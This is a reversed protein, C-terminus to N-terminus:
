GSMLTARMRRGKESDFPVFEISEPPYSVSRFERLRHDVFWERGDYRVSPLARVTATEMSECGPLGSM